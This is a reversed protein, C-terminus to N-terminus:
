LQNEKGGPKSPQSTLLQYGTAQLKKKAFIQGQMLNLKSVSGATSDATDIFHGASAPNDAAPNNKRIKRLMDGQLSKRAISAQSPAVLEEESDESFDSDYNEQEM